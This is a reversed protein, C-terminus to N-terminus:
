GNNNYSDTITSEPPSLQKRLILGIIFGLTPIGIPGSFLNILFWFYILFKLKWHIRKQYLKGLLYIFFLVGIIGISSVISIYGGGQNVTFGDGLIVNSKITNIYSFFSAFRSSFSSDAELLVAPNSSIVKLLLNLGRFQELAGFYEFIVGSLALLAALIVVSIKTYRLFILFVAVVAGYGSLSIILCFCTVFFLIRNKGSKLISGFLLCYIIFLNLIHLAFFSPEPSLTRAGRGSQMLMEFSETRTPILLREVLGQTLFFIVSFIAFIFFVKRLSREMFFYRTTLAFFIALVFQFFSFIRPWLIPKEDLFNNLFVLFITFFFLLVLALLNIYKLNYYSPLVKYDVLLYFLSIFILILFTPQTDTSRILNPIFPFFLTFFILSHILKGPILTVNFNDNM